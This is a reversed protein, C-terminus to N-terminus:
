LFGIFVFFIKFFENIAQSNKISSPLNNWPISEIFHVSNLGLRFSKVPPLFVKTGKRLHYPIFYSWLFEPNLHILSKFVELNIFLCTITSNFFNKTHNIVNMTFWSFYVVLRLWSLHDEEVVPFHAGRCASHSRSCHLAKVVLLFLERKVSLSSRTRTYKSWFYPIYYNKRGSPLGLNIRRKCCNSM